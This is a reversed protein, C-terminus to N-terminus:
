TDGASSDISSRLRDEYAAIRGKVVSSNSQTRVAKQAQNVSQARLTSGSASAPVTGSRGRPVRSSSSSLPAGDSSQLAATASSSASALCTRPIPPSGQAMGSRSGNTSTRITPSGAPKTSLHSSSNMIRSSELRSLRHAELASMSPPVDSVPQPQLPPQPLSRSPPRNLRWPSGPHNSDGHQSPLASMSSSAASPHLTPTTSKERKKDGRGVPNTPPVVADTFEDPRTSSLNRHSPSGRTIMSPSTVSTAAPPHKWPTQTIQAPPSPAQPSSSSKSRGQRLFVDRDSSHPRASLQSGQAADMVSAVEEDSNADDHLEMAGLALNPSHIVVHDFTTPTVPSSSSTYSDTSYMSAGSKSVPPAVPDYRNASTRLPSPTSPERGQPKMHTPLPMPYTVDRNLVDASTQAMQAPSTSPHHGSPTSMSPSDSLADISITSLESLTYLATHDTDSQFTPTGLCHSHDFPVLRAYSGDFSLLPDSPTPDVSLFNIIHLPLTVHVDPALAGASATIRISYEVQILRSRSVSLADSQSPIDRM